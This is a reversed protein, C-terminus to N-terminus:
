DAVPIRNKNLFINENNYLFVAFLAMILIGAPLSVGAPGSFFVGYHFVLSVLYLICSSTIGVITLQFLAPNIRNTFLLSLLVTCGLVLTGAVWLIVSVATKGHYFGNTIYSIEHTVPILSIGNGTIQYRYVAGQIGLGQDNGIIFCQLPLFFFFVMLTLPVIWTRVTDPMGIM